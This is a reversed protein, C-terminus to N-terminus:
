LTFCCNNLWSSMMYIRMHLDLPLIPPGSGGPLTELTQVGGGGSFLQVGEPDESFNEKYFWQVWETFYTPSSLFCCCYFWRGSQKQGDPRSGAGGGGGGGGGGEM